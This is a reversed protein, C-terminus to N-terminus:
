FRNLWNQTWKEWRSGAKPPDKIYGECERDENVEAREVFEQSVLELVLANLEGRVGSIADQEITQLVRPTLHLRDLESNIEDRNEMERKM